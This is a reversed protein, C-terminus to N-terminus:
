ISPTGYIEMNSVKTVKFSYYHQFPDTAPSGDFAVAFIRDTVSPIVKFNCLDSADSVVANNNSLTWDYDTGFEMFSGHVENVRQKYEYYRPAFGFLKQPYSDVDNKNINREFMYVPQLGLGDFMPYPYDWPSVKTNMKDLRYSDYNNRPVVYHIGLVICDDDATFNVVSDKGDGNYGKGAIQGLVSSGSDSMGDGTAVVDSISINSSYSGLYRPKHPDHDGFGFIAKMQADLSKDAYIASRVFKDQSMMTRVHQPFIDVFTKDGSQQTFLRQFVTSYANQGAPNFNRAQQKETGVKNNVGGDTNYKVENPVGYPVGGTISIRGDTDWDFNTGTEFEVDPFELGSVGMDFGTSPKASTFVDKRLNKYRPTFLKYLSIKSNDGDDNRISLFSPTSDQPTTANSSDTPTNDFKLGAFLNDVNYYSPDLKEYEENRYGHMYICQYAALRFYNVPTMASLRTYHDVIGSMINNPDKYMAIQDLGQIKPVSYLLHDLMRLAFCARPTFFDDQPNTANKSFGFASIANAIDRFRCYPHLYQKGVDVLETTRHRYTQRLRWAKWDSWLLRIPVAWFDVKEDFTMFASTNLPRTRTINSLGIKLRDGQLLEMKFVPQLLGAPSSFLTSHSMEFANRPSKNAVVERHYINATSM